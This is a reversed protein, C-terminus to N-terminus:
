DREENWEWEYLPCIPGEHALAAAYGDAIDLSRITWRSAVDLVDATHLAVIPGPDHSVTFRALGFAIGEGTAKVFAEKRTWIRFFAAERATADLARLAAAESPAFFRSALADLDTLPRHPEIDVGVDRDRALAVLAWGHAHSVNFRIAASGAEDLAPKGTAGIRLPVTAPPRELYHGLLHRLLGRTFAFRARDAPQRYRAMRAREDPTLHACMRAAAGELVNISSFDACSRDLPMRLRWVHVTERELPPMRCVM